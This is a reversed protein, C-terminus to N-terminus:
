WSDFHASLRDYDTDCCVYQIPTNTFLESPSSQGNRLLNIVLKFSTFVTVFYNYVILFIANADFHTWMDGGGTLTPSKGQTKKKQM